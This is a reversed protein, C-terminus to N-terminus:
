PNKFFNKQAIMADFLMQRSTQSKAMVYELLEKNDSKSYIFNYIKDSIMRLYFDAMNSAQGIATNVQKELNIGTTLEVGRRTLVYRHRIKDYKMLDDTLPYTLEGGSGGDVQDLWDSM